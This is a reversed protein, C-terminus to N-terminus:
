KPKPFQVMEEAFRRFRKVGDKLVEGRDFSTRVHDFRFGMTRINSHNKRVTRVTATDLDSDSINIICTELRTHTRLMDIDFDDKWDNGLTHLEFTELSSFAECFRKLGSPEAARYPESCNYTRIELTQILLPDESAMLPEFFYQLETCQTFKLHRLSPLRISKLLDPSLTSIDFDNLAFETISIPSPLSFTGLHKFTNTYMQCPECHKRHNQGHLIVSKVGETTVGVSQLYRNIANVPTGNAPRRTLISQHGEISVEREMNRKEQKHSTFQLYVLCDFITSSQDEVAHMDQTERVSRMPLRLQKLDSRLIEGRRPDSLLDSLQSYLNELLTGHIFFSRLKLKELRGFFKQFFKFGRFDEGVTLQLHQTFRLNELLSDFQPETTCPMVNSLILSLDKFRLNAGIRQM